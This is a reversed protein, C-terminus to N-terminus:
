VEAGGSQVARLAEDVTEVILVPAGRWADRFAAQKAGTTPNTSGSKRRHAPNKVEALWTRGRYGVLVDPVGGGVAALDVVSAGLGRLADVVDKHNQDRRTRRYRM